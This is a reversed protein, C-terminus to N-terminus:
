NEKVAIIVISEGYNWGLWGITFQLLYFPIALVGRGIIPISNLFTSGQKVTEFGCEKLENRWQKCSKLSIHDDRFGGWKSKMIRAGIGNINPTTIMIIGGKRLVRNAESFFVSPDQIHEVVQFSVVCDLSCDLLPLQNASGVYFSASDVYKKTYEVLSSEIDLGHLKVKNLYRRAASLFYGAGCGVELLDKIETREKKLQRIYPRYYLTRLVRIIRKSQFGTPLYTKNGINKKIKKM